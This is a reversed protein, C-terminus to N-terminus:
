EGPSLVIPYRVTVSGDDGPKPFKWRRMARAVCRSVEHDAFEEGTRDVVKAVRGGPEVVFELEITGSLSPDSLIGVAYCSRIEFLHARMIRRVVDRDLAGDVKAQKFKVDLKATDPGEDVKQTDVLAGWVDDDDGGIAMVAAFPARFEIQPQGAVHIGDHQQWLLLGDDAGIASVEADLVRAFAHSREGIWWVRGRSYLWAQKGDPLLRLDDGYFDGPLVEVLSGDASVRLVQDKAAGSSWDLNIFVVSSGVAAAALLHGAKVPQEWVVEVTEFRADSRLVFEHTGREAVWVLRRGDSTPRGKPKHTLALVGPAGDRGPAGGSIGAHAICCESMVAVREGVVLPDALVDEPVYDLVVWAQELDNSRAARVQREAGTTTHWVMLGDDNPVAITAGGSWTTYETAGGGRPFSRHHHVDGVHIRERQVDVALVAPLEDSPATIVITGTYLHQDHFEPAGGAAERELPKCAVVTALELLILARQLGRGRGL